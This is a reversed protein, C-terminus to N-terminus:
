IKRKLLDKIALLLNPFRTSFLVMDAMEGMALRLAAAPAPIILAPRGLAEKIEITLEKNTVPDPGVGNYIGQMQNDEIGKIFMQCIDDIHIWSYYQSGDGLYSGVGFKFSLLIKDLAGGKTSLVIGVRLIVQRIDPDDIEKIANEWLICSETLFGNNGPKSDEDVFDNDTKGYYGIASAAIYAEPKKKAEAFAKKLLRNSDVRSDIILKKRSKSWRKDVIGAGALNVIYDAQEIAQMDIEGKVVDWKYAPFKAALREKRSLHIVIYGKDTLLQSLRQGILGTGGAILITAM